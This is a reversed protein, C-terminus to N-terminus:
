WMSQSEPLLPEHCSECVSALLQSCAFWAHAAFHAPHREHLNKLKLKRWRSQLQNAAHSVSEPATGPKRVSGRLPSQPSGGASARRDRGGDRADM